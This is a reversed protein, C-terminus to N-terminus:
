HCQVTATQIIKGHEIISLKVPQNTVYSVKVKYGSLNLGRIPLEATYNTNETAAVCTSLGDATSIEKLEFNELPVDIWTTIIQPIGFLQSFTIHQAKGAASVVPTIEMKTLHNYPAIASYNKGQGAPIHDIEKPIEGESFSYVINKRAIQSSKFGLYWRVYGFMIEHNVLATKNLNDLQNWAEKVIYVTRQQDNYFAIQKLQCQSPIYSVDGLDNAAPLQNYEVFQVEKFFMVLNKQIEERREEALNPYGQLTYTRDATDFYQQELSPASAVLKLNLDQQAEYLDLVQVSAASVATEPCFVAFGGGGTSPGAALAKLSLMLVLVFVNKTMKM